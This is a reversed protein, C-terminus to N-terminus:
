EGGDFDGVEGGGNEAEEAFDVGDEFGKEYGGHNELVEGLLLGGLLGAGAGLAASTGTGVM